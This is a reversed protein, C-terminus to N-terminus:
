NKLYPQTFLFSSKDDFILSKIWNNTETIEWPKFGNETSKRSNKIFLRCKSFKFLDAFLNMFFLFILSSYSVISELM